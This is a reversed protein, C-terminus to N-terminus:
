ISIRVSIWEGARDIRYNAMGLDGLEDVIMLEQEGLIGSLLLVQRAKSTLLPLIPLIVDITLNAAVFDHAATADDIPGDFITIREGM